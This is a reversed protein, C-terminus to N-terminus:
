LTFENITKEIIWDLYNKNEVLKTYGADSGREDRCHWDLRLINKAIMNDMKWQSTQNKGLESSDRLLIFSNLAFEKDHIRMLEKEINPLTLNTSKDAFAVKEKYQETAFDKTGMQGKPDIFNIYVKDKGILWMIFDPYFVASDDNLYIGISKLSEVNRM